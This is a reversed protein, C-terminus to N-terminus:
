TISLDDSRGDMSRVTSCPRDIPRDSLLNVYVKKDQTFFIVFKRLITSRRVGSRSPCPELGEAAM